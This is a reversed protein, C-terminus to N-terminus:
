LVKFEQKPVEKWENRSILSWIGWYYLTAEVPSLESSNSPTIRLMIKQRAWNIANSLNSPTIDSSILVNPKLDGYIM